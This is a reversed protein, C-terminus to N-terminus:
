SISVKNVEEQDSQDWCQMLVKKVDQINEFHTRVEKFEAVKEIM